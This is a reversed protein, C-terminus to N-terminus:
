NIPIYFTYTINQLTQRLHFNLNFKLFKKKIIALEIQTDTNTRVIDVRYCNLWELCENLTEQTVVQNVYDIILWKTKM